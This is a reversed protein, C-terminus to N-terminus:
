SVFAGIFIYGVMVASAILIGVIYDIGFISDFLLGISILGAAVYYTLFIVCALSSILRIAGTADNYRKSLYSPMTYCDLYETQERFRPAVFQWCCFMGLILSVAAWLQPVGGVFLSMPFAMFLWSSMDSAQASLATVWFNLKRGGVLLDAQTVDKKRVLFGILFLAGFYLGFAIWYYYITPQFAYKIAPKSEVM